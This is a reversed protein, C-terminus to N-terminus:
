VNSFYAAANDADARIQEKLADISDFRIEPRLRKYFELRVMKGYQNGTYNLIYTEATVNDQNDVTPRVGINTVGIHESGDDLFVRTAYVGYAPILVGPAFCMNITPTGLTRGLRYGYHVIDTLVHPHGLFENAQELDGEAILTRIYTSSSVIGKYTVAPIIDCGIGLARSKELLKEACGEGKWGFRFDHGAVLHVADFEGTLREVFESWPMHMTENDFHLIIVNKIGFIRHILGARDECSNILPVPCGTVMSIPHADFTMVSPLLDKEKAIKLVREMLASHGIHVGDFFGLAIVRKKETM